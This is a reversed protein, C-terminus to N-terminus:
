GAVALSDYDSHHVVLANTSRSDFYSLFPRWRFLLALGNEVLVALIFLVFLAKFSADYINPSDLTPARPRVSIEIPTQPADGIKYSVKDELERAGAPPLYILTTQPNPGKTESLAM